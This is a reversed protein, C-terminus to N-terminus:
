VAARMTKLAKERIQRVREETLNFIDAVDWMSKEQCGIGFLMRVIKQDRESLKSLLANAMVEHSEKEVFDDPRLYDGVLTDGFTTGSEEDMPTDLSSQQFELGRQKSHMRVVKGREIIADIIAKQIFFVAYSIFSNERNLDFKRVANILGFNGESILDSLELGQNQYKKAVSVVFRLYSCIIKHESALDGNQAKSILDKEENKTVAGISRIDEFYANLIENRCTTMGEITFINLIHRKTKEQAM